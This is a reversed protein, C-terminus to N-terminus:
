FRQCLCTLIPRIKGLRDHGLSGRPVLTSNNTFHLYRSIDRFRDRSIRDSVPAYRLVPDRKWYDDIAPVHAIAMIISFGLYARLELETIPEWTAYKEEGMVEKAYNNSGRVILAILDPTFTLLFANLPCEPITTSPGVHSSFQQVPPTAGPASWTTGDRPKLTPVTTNVDVCEANNTEMGDTSEEMEERVCGDSNEELEVGDRNEAKQHQGAEEEVRECYEEEEEELDEELDSFEDSGLTVPEQVGDLGEWEESDTLDIDDWDEIVEETTLRARKAM